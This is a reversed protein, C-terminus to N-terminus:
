RLASKVVTSVGVVVAIIAIIGVILGVLFETSSMFNYIYNFFRLIIPVAYYYFAVLVFIIVAVIAIEGYAEEKNM